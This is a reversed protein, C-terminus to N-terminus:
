KLFKSPFSETLGMKSQDIPMFGNKLLPSDPMIHFNGNEADKFMPDVVMGNEDMGLEQLVKLLEKMEDKSDKWYYFNYDVVNNGPKGASLDMRFYPPRNGEHWIMNRMVFGDPFFSTTSNYDFYMDLQKGPEESLGLDKCSAVINNFAMNNASSAIGGSFKWIINGFVWTSMQLADTRIGVGWADPSNHIFNYRIVNLPGTDSIYIGNGDGLVNMVDHIENYEIINQRNHNLNFHSAVLKFFYLSDWPTSVTGGPGTWAGGTEDWRVSRSNERIWLGVSYQESGGHWNYHILSDNGELFNKRSEHTFWPRYGTIVMGSYPMASIDNHSILNESSQSVAIAANHWYLKGADRIINNTISNRTNVDKTGLGYGGLFVGTGGIGHILNNKVQINKCYLDLRIGVGGGATFECGEVICDEAGRFRFFANDKDFLEWDHQIGSDHKEFDYRDNHKFTLGRFVLNKVPIDNRGKIDNKGEVRILEQLVPVYVNEPFTNEEPWYYIKGQRSNACWTGPETMGELTNEIWAHEDPFRLYREKTLFYTGEIQTKISRNDLNIAEIPLNNMTWLCWPRIVLELDTVNEWDKLEAKDNVYMVDFSRLHAQGDRNFADIRSKFGKMRSRKLMEDDNFLCRPVDALIEPMSAEYVKGKAEAPLGKLRSTREWDTLKYGASIVPVEGEYAEWSITRNEDGGDEVNFVVTEEMYYYGGRLLVKIDSNSEKKALRVLEQAKRFSKVPSAKSGDNADNGSPSMYFVSQASVNTCILLSLISLIFTLKHKM